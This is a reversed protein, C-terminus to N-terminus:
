SEKKLIEAIAKQYASDGLELVARRVTSPWEIPDLKKCLALEYLATIGDLNFVGKESLRTYPNRKLNPNLLKENIYLIKQKIDKKFAESCIIDRVSYKSLIDIQKQTLRSKSMTNKMFITIGKM